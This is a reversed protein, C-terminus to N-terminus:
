LCQYAIRAFVECKEVKGGCLIREGSELFSYKQARIREFWAGPDPSRTGATAPAWPARREARYTNCVNNNSILFLRM